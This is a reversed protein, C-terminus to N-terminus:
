IIQKVAALAAAGIGNVNLQVSGGSTNVGTVVGYSLPTATIKAGAAVASIGFTFTGDSLKTGADSTGDWTLATIGSSQAGLNISHVANGSSDYITVIMSDVSQPLQVGFIAQGNALAMKSGDVLVSHGVMNAAQMTQSAAYSASLAQMSTNLENIGSVVNLQALQSTLQANDLPNLPDQNKLQTVLLQLFRQEAASTSDGTTKSTSNTGLISSLPSTGQVATM